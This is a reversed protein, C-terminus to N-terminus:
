YEANNDKQELHFWRWDSLVYWRLKGGRKEIYDEYMEEFNDVEFMEDILERDIRCQEVFTIDKRNRLEYKEPLCMKVLAATRVGM